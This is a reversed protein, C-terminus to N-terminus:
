KEIRFFANTTASIPVTVLTFSGDPTQPQSVTSWTAGTQMVGTSKLTFGTESAPWRIEINGGVATATLKLNSPPPVLTNPGANFSALVDSDLLPGNYIRFEDYVANINGDGPFQSRGLWSNRDDVVNLALVAAATGVRRGNIYFRAVGNPVDYVYAYHVNTNLTIASPATIVPNEAGTGQKIAVRPNATSFATMFLYSRGPDGVVGEAFGGNGDPAGSSMGFDFIRAWGANARVSVWTEITVSTNTSVLNNPLDIFPATANAGGPLAVQGTGTFNTGGGNALEGHAGGVSDTVVTSEAAGDFSYRHAVVGRNFNPPLTVTILKTATQGGYTSTVTATGPAIATINGNAAITLVNTDSSSHATGNFGNVNFNNTGNPFDARLAVAILPRGAALQNTVDQRLATPGVVTVPLTATNGDLNATLTATGAARPLVAGAANVTFITPDSTTFVVGAGTIDVGQINAFNAVVKTATAVNNSLLLQPLPDIVMSQFAGPSTALNDPGAQRSLAVELGSMAGEYIRFENYSGMFQPDPYQALGLWNNNDTMASLAFPAAGSAVPIGNIYMRSIGFEPAYVCVFHYEQNVNITAPGTLVPNEGLSNGRAAFRPNTGGRVTLFMYGNAATPGGAAHPDSKSSSGFDFIRAWSVNNPGSWTVWTEITINTKSSIIGDPLDIYTGEQYSAATPLTAKGGGFVVANTGSAGGFPTGNQGGVSDVVETADAAESFSYRHKIAAPAAPSVFITVASSQGDRSATIISSGVSIASLRGDAEVRIISPSSSVLSVDPPAVVTEGIITYKATITPTQVSGFNMANNAALVINTVTGPNYSITDPSGMSSAKLAVGSVVNSHIRFENFSGNLMADGGYLSRGLWNNIDQVASVPVVTTASVGTGRLAGNVYLRTVGNTGYTVAVHTQVGLPFAETDNVIPREAGAAGDTIAFRGIGGAGVSPTLFMYASGTGAAQDPGIEGGTSAGFDFIRSWAGVSNVTVWAELTIGNTKSSIIGNPLDIYGGTGDLVAQGDVFEVPVGLPGFDNSRQLALGHATGVTDSVDNTFSYRHAIDASVQLMSSALGLVVAARVLTRSLNQM